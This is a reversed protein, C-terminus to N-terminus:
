AAALYQRTFPTETFVIGKPTLEVSLTPNPQTALDNSLGIGPEAKVSEPEAFIASERNNSIWQKRLKEVSLGNKLCYESAVSLFFERWDQM